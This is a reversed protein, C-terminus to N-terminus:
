AVTPFFCTLPTGAPSSSRIASDLGPIPCLRHVSGCSLFCWSANIDLTGNLHPILAQAGLLQLARVMHGLANFFCQFYKLLSFNKLSRTSSLPSTDVSPPSIGKDPELILWPFLPLLFHAM